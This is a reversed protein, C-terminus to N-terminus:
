HKAPNRESCYKWGPLRKKGQFRTLSTIETRDQDYLHLELTTKGLVETSSYGSISTFGDNIKLIKGDALRTLTIAYPSSRFAKTFKEEQVRVDALLRRNVMLVLGFTLEILLIQYTILILTDYTGIKFFDNSPVPYVLIVFIRIISVFGLLAFVIGVERTQKRRGCEVQHLMLWASQFSVILLSVSVVIDRLALNPSVFAFYEHLLIAAVLFFYNHIQPNKIGVFRTLGIYGLLAGSIIFINSLGLSMWDPIIGRLAISTSVALTQFLFDLFWYHVGSFRKRDQFWLVALVLTCVIDTLIHSFIVTRVDLFNM